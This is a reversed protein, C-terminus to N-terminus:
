IDNRLVKKRIILYKFLFIFIDIILLLIFYDFNNFRFGFLYLLYGCILNILLYFVYDYSFKFNPKLVVFYLYLLQAALVFGNIVLIIGFLMTGHHNDLSMKWSEYFQLSFSILIIIFHKIVKM